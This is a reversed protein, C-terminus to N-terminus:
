RKPTAYAQRDDLSAARCASRRRDACGAASPGCLEAIQIAQEPEARVRARGALKALLEVAAAQDIVDLARLRVGDLGGLPARSTIIVACSASGPLLPRVQTEDHANDLVVLARRATLQARYVAARRDFEQPIEDAALGLAELFGALVAQPDLREPEAGRLNVYLQADPYRDRLRHAIHIALASKGVGPKGALASIVVAGMDGHPQGLVELLDDVEAHRGTFDAIDAPLAFLSTPAPRGAISILQVTQARAINVLREVHGGSLYTALEAPVDERDALESLWARLARAGEDPATTLQALLRRLQEDASATTQLAQWAVRAGEDDDSAM